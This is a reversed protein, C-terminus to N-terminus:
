RIAEVIMAYSTVKDYEEKNFSGYFKIDKYGVDMLMTKLEESQLPYLMVEGFTDLSGEVKLHTMFRILGSTKDLEYKRVFSMKAEEHVITPLSTISEEIVRDFNIIQLLLRGKPETVDYFGKLANIIDKKKTIHVLSNGICAVQSFLEGENMCTTLDLMNAVEFRCNYKKLDVCKLNNKAVDIMEEDLDVGVVDYGRKSLEIAYKGDGCAVDLVKVQQMKPCLFDVTMEKLPFILHYYKSISSYFDM